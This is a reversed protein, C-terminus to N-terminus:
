GIGDRMASLRVLAALTALPDAFRDPARDLTPGASSAAIRDADGGPQNATVRLLRALPTEANPDGPMSTSTAFGPTSPPLDSRRGMIGQPLRGGFDSQQLGLWDRASSEPLPAKNGYHPSRELTPARPPSGRWGQQQQSRMKFLRQMSESAGQAESIYPIEPANGKLALGFLLNNEFEKMAEEQADWAKTADDLMQQRDIEKQLDTRNDLEPDNRSKAM